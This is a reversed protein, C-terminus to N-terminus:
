GILSEDELRWDLVSEKLKKWALRIKRYEDIMNELQSHAATFAAPLNLFREDDLYEALKRSGKLLADKQRYKRRKIEKENLDGTQKLFWNLFPNRGIWGLAAYYFREKIPQTFIDPRRPFNDFTNHFILTDVDIIKGGLAPIIKGMLTDEGRGLILEGKLLYTTSYYPPIISFLNLDL